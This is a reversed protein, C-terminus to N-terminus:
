QCVILAQYGGDAPQGPFHERENSLHFGSREALVTAVVQQNEEPEISCTSYVLRGGPALRDLGLRILRLQIERLERVNEETLRHRAEPRKGLVGSNSCPADILIADFRAEPLRGNEPDITATTIISLGLRDRAEEVRQLRDADIDTAVIEGRNKMLEALHTTKGGPAACMDWVRSGPRPDLLRSASMASEDQVSFWGQSFGPLTPVRAAELLKVSEPFQGLAAEVGASQLDEMFIERDVKLLNVRLYSPAPHNFWFGIQELREFDFREEWRRASWRGFGFAAAFYEAPETAPDPFLDRDFVRYEGPQIPVANAQPTTIVEETMARGISRLVGNAFGAWRNKGNSKCLAVTENVAAHLPIGRLFVIQYAGLRLLCWLEPEVSSQGRSVFRELIEDLTRQRRAVGLTLETTLGREQSSLRQEASLAKELLRSPLRQGDLALCLLRYSLERATPAASTPKATM